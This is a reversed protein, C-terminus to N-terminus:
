CNVVSLQRRSGAIAAVARAGEDLWGPQAQRAIRLQSRFEVVSYAELERREAYAM